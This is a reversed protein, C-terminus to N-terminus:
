KLSGIMVFFYKIILKVYMIFTFNEITKNYYHNHFIKSPVFLFTKDCINLIETCNENVIIDKDPFNYYKGPNHVGFKDNGINKFVAEKVNVCFGNNKFITAKWEIAWTDIKSTLNSIIQITNHPYTKGDFKSWERVKIENMFKPDNQKWRDKWTAWGWCSMYDTIYDCRNVYKNESTISIGANIHYISSFKEYKKLYKSLLVIFNKSILLDDEIVICKDYNKFALDLGSVINKKLGLNYDREILQYRFNLKTKKIQERILYIDQKDIHNKAGDSFFYVFVSNIDESNNLEKLLNKINNTRRYLFVAVAIM